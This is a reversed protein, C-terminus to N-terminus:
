IFCVTFRNIETTFNSMNLNPTQPSYSMAPAELPCQLFQLKKYSSALIHCKNKNNSLEREQMDETRDQEAWGEHKKWHFSLNKQGVTALYKNM